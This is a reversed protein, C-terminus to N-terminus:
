ALISRATRSPADGEGFSDEALYSHYVKGFAVGYLAIGQWATHPRSSGESHLHGFEGHWDMGMWAIGKEKQLFIVPYVFHFEYDWGHM